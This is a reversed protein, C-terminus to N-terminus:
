VEIKTLKVTLRYAYIIGALAATMVIRGSLTTYLVEIYGPSTLNLFLIVIVPMASILKGEFRKQSTLTKIEKEISIKDMLIGSTKSIVSLIDGGTLRSISYIDVFNEIDRLGSRKAFDLLVEEVPARSGDIKNLMATVELVMPSKEDYIQRLNERADFLSERMDRGSSFSASLSYLFDRFQTLLLEKKKEAISDAYYKMCVPIFIGSAISIVFSHYFIYSGIFLFIYSVIVCDRTESLSMQHKKYSVQKM